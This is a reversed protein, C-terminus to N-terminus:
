WDLGWENVEDMQVDKAKEIVKDVFDVPVKFESILIDKVTQLEYENKTVLAYWPDSVPVGDKFTQYTLKYTNKDQKETKVIVNHIGRVRKKRWSQWEGRKSRSFHIGRSFCLL